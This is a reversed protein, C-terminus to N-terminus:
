EQWMICEWGPAQNACAFTPLYDAQDRNSHFFAIIVRDDLSVDWKYAGFADCRLPSSNTECAEHFVRRVVADSVSFSNGDGIHILRYPRRQWPKLYAGDSASNQEVTAPRSCAPITAALIVNAILIQWVAVLRQKPM